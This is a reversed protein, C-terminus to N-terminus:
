QLQFGEYGSAAVEARKARMAPASDPAVLLARPKGPINTGVFWNDTMTRILKAGEENVHRTWKEEAEPTPSIRTYNHNRVYCICDIMWEM